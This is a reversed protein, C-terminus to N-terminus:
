IEADLRSSRLASIKFNVRGFKIIDKIRVPYSATDTYFQKLTENKPKSKRLVLWMTQKMDVNNEDEEEDDKGGFIRVPNLVPQHFGWLTQSEPKFLIRMFESGRNLNDFPKWSVNMEHRQLSVLSNCRLDKSDHSTAESEDGSAFLMDKLEFVDM